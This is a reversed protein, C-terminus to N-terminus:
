QRRRRFALLGLTLLTILAPVLAINILRLNRGLKEIDRDLDHRVQRLEKRIESRKAIYQEIEANQEDSLTLVQSDSPDPQLESLATETEELKAQLEQEKARFQQDAMRRLTEVKEFPRSFSARGRISILAESGALNDLANAVFDGNYSCGCLCDFVADNIDGLIPARL